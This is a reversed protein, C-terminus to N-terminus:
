FTTRAQKEIEAPDKEVRAIGSRRAAEAVVRAVRPAVAYDM